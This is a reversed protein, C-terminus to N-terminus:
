KLVKKLIRLKNKYPAFKIPIDFVTPSKVVSRKRSFTEFSFKGHYNGMGSNGVGGFPLKENIFHVLTENVCVGGSDVKNLIKDINKKNSSFVYLTLPKEKKMQRALLEDLDDFGIVPLIPGFIEEQMISLSEDHCEILTPEIYKDAKHTRGGFLVKAENIYASVRNFAKENIMRALDPSNKLDEGFQRHIEKKILDILENKVTNHVYLHDITICTQGLNFFKGQVLRRATKGLNASEDVICPNKGGLELTYPTLHEVAANAVIGGLFRGGTFFIYDYRQELLIKNVNRGGQFVSIYNEPFTEVIMKEILESTATSYDAPKLVVCNGASIAGILPTFLLGFPYNWPAMVLTLGYPEQRIFSKAPFIVLPSKKRKTKTWHKLHKLHTRIEKMVPGIEGAYGEFESKRLDKKLAELINDENKKITEKLKKLAERRFSISRTLGSDFFDRQSQLISSINEINM